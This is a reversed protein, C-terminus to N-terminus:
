GANSIKEPRKRKALKPRNGEKRNAKNSQQETNKGEEM